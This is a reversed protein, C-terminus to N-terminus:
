GGISTAGALEDAMRKTNAATDQTAEEIASFVGTAGAQTAGAAGFQVSSVAQATQSFARGGDIAATTTQAALQEARKAAAQDAARSTLEDLRVQADARRKASSNTDADNRIAATRADRQQNIAETQARQEDAIKRNASDNRANRDGIKQDTSDAILRQQEAAVEDSVVGVLKQVWVFTSKLWGTFRDWIDQVTSVLDGWFSALGATWTVWGTAISASAQNFTDQITAWIEVWDIGLGALAEQWLIDLSALSIEVALALDGTSLADVIGNWGDIVNGFMAQASTGAQGFADAVTQGWPGLSQLGDNLTTGFSSFLSELTELPPYAQLFGSMAEGVQAAVSGLAQAVPLAAAAIDTLVPAFAAAATAGANYMGTQLNEFTDGLADLADADRSTLRGLAVAEARFAQVGAAGDKMLPLLDAGARGFVDLAAATRRAPDDIKSIADALVEFQRDPSLQALEEVSVGLTDFAARAQKSGGAADVLKQGMKKLGGELTELSTGSMKAAHDLEGLAEISVGTRDSMDVLRGGTEGLSSAFAFVQGAAATVASAVTGGILGAVGGIAAAAATFGGPLKALMQQLPTKDGYIEVYARGAKIAGSNSM